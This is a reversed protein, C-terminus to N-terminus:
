GGRRESELAVIAQDIASLASQALKPLDKSDGTLDITRLTKRKSDRDYRQIVLRLTVASGESQYSGAVRYVNPHRQVDTWLKYVKSEAFAKGFLPELGLPDEEDQDFTGLIVIPKPPPLALIGRNEANTVGVDFTQGTPSRRLEPRQVGAISVENKLSEVRGAAYALWVSVDLFMEGSATKRLGVDSALDIAELLSYTLMGYGVHSSEYSLQDAAAGALLWTGSADKISEYARVYDSSVSREAQTSASASGDIVSSAAAGSHCTDLIIVQKTAPIAALAKQLDEGSITATGLIAPTVDGPNADATLFFYGSSEGIRSTGHGAFFVFIIDSSTAKKATEALWGLIAERTPRTEGEATSLLNLHVRNPLLKNGTFNLAEKLKAADAPPAKLDRKDGVYDGVGVFLGYLNVEPTQLNAPVGLDLVQPRSVLDGKANTAIVEIQNGQGEPLQSSPLFFAQYDALNVNFFDSGKKTEIEKGNLLVRVTGVGGEDRPKLTVSIRNQNVKSRQIEIDPYLRISNLDPVSRKPSTDKGLLKAFLNPEYFVPKFQQVDIPELGGEWELVYSAGFVKSPDSADYRGDEDMVLWSGDTMAVFSGLRRFTPINDGSPSPLPKTTDYISVQDLRDNILLRSDNECFSVSEVQDRSTIKAHLKGTRLNILNVSRNVPIALIDSSPAFSASSGDLDALGTERYLIKGTSSEYCVLTSHGRAVFKTGGEIFQFNDTVSVDDGSYNKALEAPKSWVKELKALDWIEIRGEVTFAMKSGDASFAFNWLNDAVKVVKTPDEASVLIVGAKECWLLVTKNDPALEAQMVVDDPNNFVTSKYEPVAMDFIHASTRDFAVLTEGAGWTAGEFEDWFGWIYELSAVDWVATIKIEEDSGEAQRYGYALALRGGPAAKMASGFYTFTRRGALDPREPNVVTHFVDTSFGERRRSFQFYGSAGVPAIFSYADVQSLTETTISGDSVKHRRISGDQYGVWFVSGDPSFEGATPGSDGRTYPFEKGTSVDWLKLQEGEIFTDDAYTGLVRGDQSVRLERIPSRYGELKRVEQLSSRDILTMLGKEDAILILDGKEGVFSAGMFSTPLGREGVIHKWEGRKQGSEINWLSALAKTQTVLLDKSDPSFRIWIGGGIGEALKRSSTPTRLDLLGISSSLTAAALLNGDPSIELSNIAGEPALDLTTAQLTSAAQTPATLVRGRSTGVYIRSHDPTLRCVTFTEEARLTINTWVALQRATRANYLRVRDPGIAVIKQGDSSFFIDTVENGDGSLVALLRMTKPEWLRPAFGRNHTLLRTGDVSEEIDQILVDSSIPILRLRGSDTPNQALAPLFLLAAGLVGLVRLAAPSPLRRTKM